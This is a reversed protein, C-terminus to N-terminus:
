RCGATRNAVPDREMAEPGYALEEILEAARRTGSPPLEAVALRARVAEAEGHDLHQVVLRELKMLERPELMAALGRECAARARAAQDDTHPGVQPVFIAPVRNYLAEHFSNYGSATVVLDAAAALTAAHQTRVVQSNRWGFWSRELTASPWVLVIHLTDSRREFMSCLALIQMSRDAAIGAGLLSVVLRELPREYREALQARLEARADDALRVEQVVPGVSHLHEGRSYAANLEEFAETPVIVRDFAKERDLGASNDQHKQWLGRRIWVGRVGAELVTRYVSDFVYGGDFVLTRAGGALARLRLYNGLDNEYTRAHLSSRGILPMVDFGYSKVMRMCSPFAAFVARSRGQRLASAILTCRQAHGLGVGNTPMFVIGPADPRVASRRVVASADGDARLFRLVPEASAIAAARSSRVHESIRRLNPLIEAEFFSALGLVGPPAAIFADSQSAPRRGVSSDLLVAGNVLLNALLTQLRYSRSVNGFFVCVDTRESLALPLVEGYHFFPVDHGNAAAWDRKGKSDALVTVRLGRRPALAAIAAVQVPDKLDPGVLLLRPGGTDTQWPPPTRRPVGFIPASRRAEPDYRSIDYLQPDCGLVYSLRARVSLETERRAFHGFARAVVGGGDGFRRLRLLSADTLRDAALLALQDGPHLRRDALRPALDFQLNHGLEVEPLSGVDMWAALGVADLQSAFIVLDEVDATGAGLTECFLM